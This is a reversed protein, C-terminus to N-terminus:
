RAELYGAEEYAALAANSRERVAAVLEPPGLVTVGSGFGLLLRAMWDLTAFRMTAELSGDPHVALRHMPYQDLVWAYDPHIRLRALPVAPDDQFLDLGATADTIDKPPRAAEDLQTAAEIRDFRFLRVGEAQRCWAQLYSNDDVLVIRIPDVIRESVVDRSASYYVLRVARGLALASRVAAVAPAERPPIRAHVYEGPASGGAIASEIKAIAAHAATPDVMGPMDVISRLAVLLATAETSTLRLPRDIGASFTVEISEESFSLDILDGPGYGPLGCMWLQNLDSMLQKTTVGLDAAAEAASIGPHAIFYPIMNLLRSLRVSLRSSM